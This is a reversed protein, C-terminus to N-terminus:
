SIIQKPAIEFAWSSRGTKKRPPLYSQFQFNTGLSIFGQKKFVNRPFEFLYAAM